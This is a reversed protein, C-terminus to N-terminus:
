QSTSEENMGKSKSPGKGKGKNSKGFLALNEDGGKESAKSEMQTEKQIYHDWLQEFNPLNERACIGKVFPEWSAPFGNLAM